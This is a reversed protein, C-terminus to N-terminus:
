LTMLTILDCALDKNNPGRYINIPKGKLIDWTFSFYAMDPRHWPGYVTFFQQSTISLGYIHNYTHPIEKGANKTEAYLSAPQDTPDMELFPVKDLVAHAFCLVNTDLGYVSSLSAWLIFVHFEIAAKCIEFINVLGAINSHVYLGPNEMANHAGVQAALHMVHTLQVVEFLSKLLLANNIDVEIVFM